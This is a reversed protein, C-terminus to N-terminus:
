CSELIKSVCSTLSVPRYNNLDNKEKRIPTVEAVKLVAPVKGSELSRRVLLNELKMYSMITYKM